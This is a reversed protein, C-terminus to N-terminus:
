AANREQRPAFLAIITEPRVRDRRMLTQVIPDALMDRLTLERDVLRPRLPERSPATTFEPM